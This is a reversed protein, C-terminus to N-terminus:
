FGFIRRLGFRVQFPEVPHFVDTFAADATPTIRSTYAYDTIGQPETFELSRRCLELEQDNSLPGGCEGFSNFKLSLHRRIGFRAPRLDRLSASFRKYDHM